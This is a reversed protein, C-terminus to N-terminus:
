YVALLVGAIVTLSLLTTVSRGSLVRDYVQLMYLPSVFMLLNIFMSFVVVSKVTPLIARLGAKLPPTDAARRQQAAPLTAAQRDTKAPPTSSSKSQSPM